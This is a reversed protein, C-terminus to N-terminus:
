IVQQEIKRTLITTAGDFGAAAQLYTRRTKEKNEKRRERRKRRINAEKGKEMRNKREERNAHEM